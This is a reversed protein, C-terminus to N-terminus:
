PLLLDNKASPRPPGVNLKGDRRDPDDTTVVYSGQKLDVRMTGTGGPQIEDSAADVPGELVFAAADRSQNSIVISALGAGVQSARQPSIKVVRDNILGSLEIPAAPRPENEFDESGCAALALAGLLAAAAACVRRSVAM